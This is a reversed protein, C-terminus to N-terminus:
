TVRKREFRGQYGPGEAREGGSKVWWWADTGGVRWAKKKLLGM